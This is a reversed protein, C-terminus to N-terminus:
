SRPERRRNAMDEIAPFLSPRCGRPLESTSRYWGAFALM